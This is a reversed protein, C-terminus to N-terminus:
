DLRAFLRCVRRERRPLVRRGRRVAEERELLKIVRDPPPGTAVRAAVADNVVGVADKRQEPQPAVRVVVADGLRALQVRERRQADRRYVESVLLRFALVLVAVPETVAGLHVVRFADM